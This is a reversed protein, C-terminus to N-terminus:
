HPPFNNIYALDNKLKQLKELLESDTPATL